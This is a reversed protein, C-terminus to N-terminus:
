FHAPVLCHAPMSTVGGHATAKSQLQHQGPHEKSAVPQWPLLPSTSFDLGPEHVWRCLRLAEGPLRNELTAAESRQRRGPVYPYAAHEIQCDLCMNCGLDSHPKCLDTCPNSAVAAWVNPVSYERRCEMPTSSTSAWRSATCMLLLEAPASSCARAPRCFSHSGDQTCPYMKLAMDNWCACTHQSCYTCANSKKNQWQPPLWGLMTLPLCGQCGAHAQFLLQTGRAATLKVHKSRPWSACARDPM